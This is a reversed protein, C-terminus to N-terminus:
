AAEGAQEAIWDPEYRIRDSPAMGAWIGNRDHLKKGLELTMVYEECSAFVPCEHCMRVVIHPKAGYQPFWQDMDVSACTGSPMWARSLPQTM